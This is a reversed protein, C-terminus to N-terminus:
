KQELMKKILANTQDLAQKTEASNAGNSTAYLHKLLGGFKQLKGITLLDSKSKIKEGLGRRRLYESMSLGVANANNEIQEKQQPTCRVPIRDIMPNEKKEFRAM